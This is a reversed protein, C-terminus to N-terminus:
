WHVHHANSELYNAPAAQLLVDYSEGHWQVCVGCLTRTCPYNYSRRGLRSWNFWDPDMHVHGRESGM